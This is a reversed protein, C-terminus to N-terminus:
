VNSGEQQQIRSKAYEAVARTGEDQWRELWSIAKEMRERSELLEVLQSPCAIPGQVLHFKIVNLVIDRARWWLMRYDSRGCVGLASGHIVDLRIKYLHLVGRPRLLDDGLAMSLLMSRLAVCDGKRQDSEVTLVSELAVCLGLLKHGYPGRTISRGIWELSRLLLRRYEGRITGDYLPALQEVSHRTWEDLPGALDLEMNRFSRSGDVPVLRVEPELQRVICFRGRRQLLEQDYIVSWPFSGICLRLTNLARDFDKQAREVAKEASSAKVRVIGVQQGTLADFTKQLSERFPGEFEDIKASDWHAAVEPSFERFVVNGITLSDPAFKIAEVNFVVEHPIPPRTITAFFHNIRECRVHSSSMQERNATIDHILIALETDLEERTLHNFVPDSVLADLAEFYLQVAERDLFSGAAADDSDVLMEREVWSDQSVVPSKDATKLVDQALRDICIFTRNGVAM